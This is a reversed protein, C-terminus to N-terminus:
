ASLVRRDREVEGKGSERARDVGEHRRRRMLEERRNARKEERCERVAKQHPLVKDGRVGLLGLIAMHPWLLPTRHTMIRAARVAIRCPEAGGVHHAFAFLSRTEPRFHLPLLASARHARVVAAGPEVLLPQLAEPGLDVSSEPPRACRRFLNRFAM